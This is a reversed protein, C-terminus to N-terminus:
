IIGNVNFGVLFHAADEIPLLQVIANSTLLGCSILVQHLGM